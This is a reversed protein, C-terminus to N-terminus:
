SGHCEGKGGCCAPEQEFYRVVIRVDQAAGAPRPYFKSRATYAEGLTFPGPCAITETGRRDNVAVLMYRASDPDPPPNPSIAAAVHLWAHLDTLPAGALAMQADWFEIEAERMYGNSVASRWDSVIKAGDLMSYHM